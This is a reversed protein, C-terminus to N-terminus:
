HDRIVSLPNKLVDRGLIAEYSKVQNLLANLVAAHRGAYEEDMFLMLSQPILMAMACTKDIRKIITGDEGGRELFMITDPVIEEVTNFYSYPINSKKFPPDPMASCKLFRGYLKITDGTVNIPKKFGLASAKKDEYRLFVADDYCLQFGNFVLGLALTTKGSMGMGCLLMSRGAGWVGAAHLYYLGNCRLLEILGIKLFVSSFGSGRKLIAGGDYGTFSNDRKDVIGITTGDSLLLGEDIEYGKLHGYSFLHPKDLDIKMDHKKDTFFRLRILTSQVKDHGADPYADFFTRVEGFLRGNDAEALVSIGSIINFLFRMSMTDTIPKLVFFAILVAPATRHIARNEPPM